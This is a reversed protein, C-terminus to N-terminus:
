NVSLAPSRALRNCYALMEDIENSKDFVREAGLEECKDRMEPTAHNSFVMRHMGAYRLGKLVGLGSGTKLFIDILVLDCRNRAGLLWRLASSEDEAIGVVDVPANEELTAILNERIVSSDEVVYIRLKGM